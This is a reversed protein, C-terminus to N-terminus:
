FRRQKRQRLRGLLAVLAMTIAGSVSGSSRGPLACGCGGSDSRPAPANSATQPTASAALQSSSGVAPSGGTQAGGSAPSASSLIPGSAAGGTAVSVQPTGGTGLAGGNAAGGSAVGGSAAGGAGTTGGAGTAHPGIASGQTSSEFAGIDKASLRQRYSCKVTEDRYYESVPLGSVSDLAAGVAPSGAVLTYDSQAANKFGPDSGFVSGTLGTATAGTVLWNNSGSVSAHANDEVLVPTNTGFVINNSLSASMTTSDANSLHVLAAHGGNGVFTNYLLNVNLKLNSAGADNYVAIVQSNNSQTSGQVVVNGRFTMNQASPSGDNDDDTM